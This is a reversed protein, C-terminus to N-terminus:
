SAVSVFSSDRRAISRSHKECVAEIGSKCVDHLGLHVLRLLHTHAHATPPIPTSRGSRSEPLHQTPWKLTLVSSTGPFECLSPARIM